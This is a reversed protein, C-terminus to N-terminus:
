GQEGEDADDSDDFTERDVEYFGEGAPRETIIYGLRNVLHMDNTICQGGDGDEVLTWVTGPHSKDREIVYAMEPGYTEFLYGVDDFAYTANPNLHNPVAGFQADFEEWTLVIPSGPAPPAADPTPTATTMNRMNVAARFMCVHKHPAKLWFECLGAM